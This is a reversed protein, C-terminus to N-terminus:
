LGSRGQEDARTWLDAVGLETAWKKLYPRDLRDGQVQIVGLIDMWQRESIENGLRYWELKHLIIDEPTLIMLDDARTEELVIPRRRGMASRDFAREKQVFVDVKFGITTHIVNFSTRNRVASEVAPLSLYYESGFRSVFDAEKGAFPEVSIDADNTSRPLGHISSVLSGGLVYPIQLEEFRRAVEKTVQLGEINREM